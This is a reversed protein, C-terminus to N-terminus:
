RRNVAASFVSLCRARAFTHEVIPSPYGGATLEPIWAKVYRFSPDFKKLQISPNFIRFYPAADCGSGVAWQWGGNNSAFEFDLLHRAFYAEGWRWDILLHKSLFSAVVMRVRNHMYGTKNLQRMGADVMPYGTKGECWIRFEDENNRWEIRDYEKKFAEGRGVRPFSWLIMQYFERWILEKLFVDADNKRAFRALERISITGFRLHIGLRSTGDVAPFNRQDGYSRLIVESFDPSPFQFPSERFGMDQLSPIEYAKQKLLNSFTKGTDYAMLSRDDLAGIWKRSYPTFVTYPSGDDKMIEAKEFIVHDKFAHFTAGVNEILKKISADRDRAYAEYDDNVFVKNIKYKQILKLFIDNPNGYYVNLCSGYQVLEENLSLITTHIFHVRGDDEDELDDLINTDFIFIPLVPLGEKLAHFLGCNDKLRLDRRFWFIHISDEM